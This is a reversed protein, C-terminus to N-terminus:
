SIDHDNLRKYFAKRSIGLMRAARSKNGECKKLADRIVRIEMDKLTTSFVAPAVEHGAPTIDGPLDRVTIEDKRAIVVAREIINKLQRINGPWDYNQCMSIVKDSVSLTKGERVGFENVFVAILLPIDEKRQRLPPVDIQVVNIRYFLDERFNRSRVEKQLDRNTSCVLRFDVKIKTSSGLREIEREQLVRLLKAQLMPELEGIEDLFITGGAAEEFRGRRMSVAGTFAGKEYGFLESELLDRPIAACNVAIFPKESRSSHYHLARAVLEKGTGTEGCILVSSASDKIARITEFIDQIEPTNGIIRYKDDGSLRSKLSEHERKLRRQEVARAVIAKLQHYDPPKIFYYFAGRTVAHVASEVTGYATLFICPIDPHEESISRFFQDGDMKPMKLDTIVADIDGSSIISRATEGDPSGLVHYGDESLIASLVRVANPEDDVVLINGKPNDKGV